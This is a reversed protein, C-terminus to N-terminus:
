LNRQMSNFNHQTHTKTNPFDCNSVSRSSLCLGHYSRLFYKGLIYIDLYNLIVGKVLINLPWVQLCTFLTLFISYKYRKQFQFIIVLIPIFIRSSEGWISGDRMQGVFYPDSQGMGHLFHPNIKNAQRAYSSVHPDTQM